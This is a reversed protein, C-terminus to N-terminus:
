REPANVAEGMRRGMEQVRDGMTDRTRPDVVAIPASLVLGAASGVSVAAGTTVRGIHEGLSTETGTIADGRALRGGILQVLEPSSAFRTHHLSDNAAAKTLDIALIKNQELISRYPERDPDIAGLRSVDGAIRRSFALARDDQATFLVFQPRPHKINRLQEGFVDVDVDPAALMVTTIKKPLTGKRISMQRLTELALWTGMSHALITVEDIGQSQSLHTLVEELADRSYNTSERDYNYALLRARSPWTFLVPAVQAQSDHVIQAFRFVADDFRNNYGHVFVLVRRPRQKGAVRWFAKEADAKDIREARLTVFDTAPNGPTRSPWQVEGTRRASDPPISVVIDAFSLHGGREGSFMAGPETPKRTTAVVMEVTKAGPATAAVPILVDTPRSACGAVLAALGVALGLRPLLAPQATGVNNKGWAAAVCGSCIRGVYELEAM